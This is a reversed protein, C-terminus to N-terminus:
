HHGGRSVLYLTNSRGRLMFFSSSHLILSFPRIVTGADSSGTGHHAVSASRCRGRLCYGFLPRCRRCPTADEKARSIPLNRALNGAFVVRVFDFNWANWKSVHCKSTKCKKQKKKKGKAMRSVLKGQLCAISVIPCSTVLRVEFYRPIKTAEISNTSTSKLFARHKSCMGHQLLSFSPCRGGRSSNTYHFVAKPGGVLLAACTRATQPSNRLAVRRCSSSLLCLM